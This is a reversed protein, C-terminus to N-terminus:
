TGGRGRGGRGLLDRPLAQREGQRRGPGPRPRGYAKLVTDVLEPPYEQSKASKSGGPGSGLVHEHEHSGDCQVDLARAIGEHNTLWGTPKKHRIGNGSVLKFMCQDNRVLTVDEVGLLQRLRPEAWAKSTWPHEFLFFGGYQIVTKCIEVGFNLLTRAEHQRRLFIAQKEPKELHHKNMNQMISYLTCPPSVITLGPRTNTIHDRVERRVAPKLLDNGLMLDFAAGELLGHEGTRSGFRRPNYVESVVKAQKRSLNLLQAHRQAHRKFGEEALQFVESRQDSVPECLLSTIKRWMQGTEDLARSAQRVLRKSRADIM